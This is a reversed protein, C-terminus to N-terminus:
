ESYRSREHPAPKDARGRLIMAKIEAQHVAAEELTLLLEDGVTAAPVRIAIFPPETDAAPYYHLEPRTM